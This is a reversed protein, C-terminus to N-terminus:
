KGNCTMEMISRIVIIIDHIDLTSLMTCLVHTLVTISFADDSIPLVVGGSPLIVGGM